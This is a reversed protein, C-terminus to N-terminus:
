RGFFWRLGYLAAAALVAWYVYILQDMYRYIWPRVPAGCERCYNMYRPNVEAGCRPCRPPEDEPKATLRTGCRWCFKGWREKRCKPCWKDEVM